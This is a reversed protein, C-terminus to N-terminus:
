EVRGCMLVAWTVAADYDDTVFKPPGKLWQGGKWAITSLEYIEYRGGVMTIALVDTSHREANLIAASPQRDYTATDLTGDRSVYIVDHPTMM